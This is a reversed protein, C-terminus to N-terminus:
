IFFEFLFKNTSIFENELAERSLYSIGKFNQVTVVLIVQKEDPWSIDYSSLMWIQVEYITDNVTNKWALLKWAEIAVFNSKEFGQFKCVM